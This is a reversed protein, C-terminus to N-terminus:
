WLEKVYRGGKGRACFLKMCLDEIQLIMMDCQTKTCFPYNLVKNQM